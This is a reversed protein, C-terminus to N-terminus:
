PRKNNIDKLLKAKLIAIYQTIEKIQNSLVSIKMSFYILMVFVFFLSFLILVSAPAIAGMLYTLKILFPQNLTLSIIL